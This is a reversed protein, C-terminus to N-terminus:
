WVFHSSYVYLYQLSLLLLLCVPMFLTLAYAALFNPILPCTQLASPFRVSLQTWTCFFDAWLFCLLLTQVFRGSNKRQRTSRRRTSWRARITGCDTATTSACDHRPQPRSSTSEMLPGSSCRQTQCTSRCNTVSIFRKFIGYLRVVKCNFFSHM